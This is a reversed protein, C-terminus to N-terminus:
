REAAMHACHRTHLEVSVEEEPKTEEEKTEEEEESDSTDSRTTAAEGEPHPLQESAAEADATSESAPACFVHSTHSVNLVLFLLMM